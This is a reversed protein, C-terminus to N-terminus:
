SCSGYSIERERKKRLYEVLYIQPYQYLVYMLSSPFLDSKKKQVSVLYEEREIVEVYKNQM